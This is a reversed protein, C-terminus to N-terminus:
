FETIRHVCFKACFQGDRASNVFHVSITFNQLNQVAINSKTQCQIAVVALVFWKPTFTIFYFLALFYFFM